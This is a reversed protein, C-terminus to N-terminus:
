KRKAEVLDFLRLVQQYEPELSLEGALSAFNELTKPNNSVGNIKAVGKHVIGVVEAAKLAAVFAFDLDGAYKAAAAAYMFNDRARVEWYKRKMGGTLYGVVYGERMAEAFAKRGTEVNDRSGLEHWGILRKFAVQRETLGEAVVVM